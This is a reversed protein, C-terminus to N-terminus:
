PRNANVFPRPEPIRGDSHFGRFMNPECGQDHGSCTLHERSAHCVPYARQDDEQRDNPEDRQCRNHNVRGAHDVGVPDRFGMSLGCM